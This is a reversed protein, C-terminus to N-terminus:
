DKRYRTSEFGAADVPCGDAWSPLDAMFDQVDDLDGFSPDCEFIGEDHVHGIQEYGLDRGNQMGAMLMDRATAQTINEVWKGGYTSLRMWKGTNSDTGMYTFQTRMTGHVKKRVLRPDYYWLKRGSPLKVAMWKDVRKFQIKGVTVIKTTQMAEIAADQIKYWYGQIIKNGNRWNMKIDEAQEETFHLGLSVSMNLIAGAGGQFGCALESVKGGGDREKKTVDEYSKGYVAMANYKYVDKGSRFIDLKKEDGALWALVRSEIQSYDMVRLIKGPRATIVGRIASKLCEMPRIYPYMSTLDEFDGAKILSVLMSMDAEGYDEQISGRPLNHLQIGKGSWRGTTAGHYLFQDRVIGDVEMRLVADIKALSTTAHEQRYRLVQKVLDPVEPDVLLRKLAASELTEKIVKKGKEKVEKTPVPVGQEVMWVKIKAVQSPKFGVLETCDWEIDDKVLKKMKMIAHCLDLDVHVGRHNIEQDLIWEKQMEPPLLGTKKVCAREANVDDDCYSMLIEFDEDTEYWDGQEERVVTYSLPIPKCMRQMVTKGSEDKQVSTKLAICLNGLGRPLARAAAAASTCRWRSIHIPPFGYKPVLYNHWVWYEFAANHAIFIVDPNKALAWLDLIVDWDVGEFKPGKSRLVPDDNVAFSLCMVDFDPCLTYKYMGVKKLDRRARTEFDLSVELM